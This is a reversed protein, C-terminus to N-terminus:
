GDNRERAAAEDAQKIAYNLGDRLKIAHDLPMGWPSLEVWQPDWRRLRVRQPGLSWYAWPKEPLAAPNVMSAM